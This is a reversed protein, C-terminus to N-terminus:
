ESNNARVTYSLAHSQSKRPFTPEFTVEKLLWKESNEPISKIGLKSPTVEDLHWNKWYFPDSLIGGRRHFRSAGVPLQLKSKEYKLCPRM